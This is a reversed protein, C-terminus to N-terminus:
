LRKNDLNFTLEYLLKDLEMGQATLLNAAFTENDAILSLLIDAESIPERESSKFFRTAHAHRFIRTLNSSVEPAVENDGDQIPENANIHTTLADQLIVINIRFKSLINLVQTNELFMLLLQETTLEKRRELKAEIHALVLFEDLGSSLIFDNFM